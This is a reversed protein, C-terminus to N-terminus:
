PTVVGVTASNFVGTWTYVYKEFALAYKLYQTMDEVSNDNIAM